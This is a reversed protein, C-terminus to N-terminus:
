RPKDNFSMTALLDTARDIFDHGRPAMALIMSPGDAGNEIWWIRHDQTSRLSVVPGSAMRFAYECPEAATCSADAPIRVDFRTAALGDLDVTVRDPIEVDTGMADIVDGATAVPVPDGATVQAPGIPVVDLVGTLFLLDRDGPGKSTAGTFVVFGPFNPQTFWGEGIDLTFTPGFNALQYVGPEVPVFPADLAPPGDPDIEGRAEFNRIEDPELIEGDPLATDLGDGTPEITAVLTGLAVDIADIGSVDDAQSSGAVLVGAPTDALFIRANPTYAVLSFPPSGFRDASVLQHERSSPEARVDYGALHYGLVEIATDTATVEATPVAAILDLVEEVSDIRVGDASQTVLSISAAEWGDEDAPDVVSVIILDGRTYLHHAPDVSFRMGGMASTTYEVLDTGDAAPEITVLRREVGDITVTEADDGFGCGAAGVGLAVMVGVASTVVRKRFKM